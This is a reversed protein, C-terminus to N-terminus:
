TCKLSCARKVISAILDGNVNINEVDLKLLLVDGRYGEDIIGIKRM